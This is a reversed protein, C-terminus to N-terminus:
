KNDDSGTEKQREKMLNDFLDSSWMAADTQIFCKITKAATDPNQNIIKEVSILVEKPISLLRNQLLQNEEELTHVIDNHHSIIRNVRKRVGIITLTVSISLLAILIIVVLVVPILVNM